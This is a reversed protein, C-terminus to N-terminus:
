ILNLNGRLPWNASFKGLLSAFKSAHDAGVAVAVNPHEPLTDLIFDRDPPMTYLCTKTMIVPGHATPFSILCKNDLRFDMLLNLPTTM